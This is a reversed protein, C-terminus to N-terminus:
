RVTPQPPQPPLSLEIYFPCGYFNYKVHTRYRQIYTPGTNDSVKVHIAIADAIIPMISAIFARQHVCPSEFNTWKDSILATFEAYALTGEHMLIKLYPHRYQRTMTMSRPPIIAEKKEDKIAIM